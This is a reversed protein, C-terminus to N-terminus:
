QGAQFDRITGVLPFLLGLTIVAITLVIVALMAFLYVRSAKLRLVWLAVAPWVCALGILAWRGHVIMATVTPLPRGSFMDEYITIFRPILFAAAFLQILSGAIVTGAAGSRFRHARRIERTTPEPLDLVAIRSSNM